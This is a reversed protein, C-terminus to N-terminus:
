SYQSKGKCTPKDGRWSGNATCVRVRSMGPTIDYGKECFYTCVSRYKNEDTCLYKLNGVSPQLTPCTKESIIYNSIRILLLTLGCKTNFINRRIFSLFVNREYISNSQCSPPFHNWVGTYMCELQSNGVLQFGSYCGFTCVAGYLPDTGPQCQYYGDSVPIHHPCRKVLFYYYYFFCYGWHRDGHDNGTDAEDKQTM